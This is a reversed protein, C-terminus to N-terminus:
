CFCVFSVFARVSPSGRGLPSPRPSPSSGLWRAGHNSEQVGSGLAPMRTKKIRSKNEVMIDVVVQAVSHTDTTNCHMVEMINVVLQLLAKMVQGEQEEKHKLVEEEELEEELEM